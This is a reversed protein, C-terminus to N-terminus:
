DLDDYLGRQHPTDDDPLDPHATLWDLAAARDALAWVTVPRAHAEARTTRLFGDYRIVDARALEGPVAGFLKPDIDPPLPVAARVADITARGVALLVSALARQARRVFLRRRARLRAHADRKRREGESDHDRQDRM